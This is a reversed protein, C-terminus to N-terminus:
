KIRATVKKAIRKMEREKSKYASAVHQIDGQCNFTVAYRRAEGPASILKVDICIPHVEDLKTYPNDRMWGHTFVEPNKAIFSDKWLRKMADRLTFSDSGGNEMIENLNHEQISIYKRFQADSSNWAWDRITEQDAIYTYSMKREPGVLGEHSVDKVEGTEPDVEQDTILANEGDLFLLREAEDGLKGAVRKRYDTLTEQIAYCEAVAALHRKTLIKHGSLIAVSSAVALILAPAYVKALKCVTQLYVNTLHKKYKKEAYEETTCDPLTVVGDRIDKIAAVQKKHEEIVSSLETATEKCAIVGAAILGITGGVVLLTPSKASIARGLKKAGFLFKEKFAM